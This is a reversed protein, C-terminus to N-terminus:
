HIMVAYPLCKKVGIIADEDVCLFNGVDLTM